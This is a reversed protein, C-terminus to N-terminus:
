APPSIQFGGGADLSYRGDAVAGVWRATAAAGGFSFLHLAVEGLRAAAHEEALTRVLADPATMSFLQRVLGAQRALAHASAKVGCRQAYRLLTSLNTPGALGIRVPEEIGFARLRGIWALIPAADFCFQTVVHAALGTAGAAAIKATLARELDHASIRPHGDPYGAIGIEVIGHRQLLGSDIAEIAGLFTGAPKDRDGAIVLLRRVGAEGTLRALFADLATEDTFNRVALHPVPEFGAARVAVAGAIEEEPPRTPVASLYVHTGAPAFASLAAIDDPTPRTVEISFGRVFDAIPQKLDVAAGPAAQLV